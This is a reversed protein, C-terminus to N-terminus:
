YFLYELTGISQDPLAFNRTHLIHFYDSTLDGSFIYSITVTREGEDRTKKRGETVRRKILVLNDLITCSRDASSDRRIYRARIFLIEIYIHVSTRGGQGSIFPSIKSLFTSKYNRYKGDLRGLEYPRALSNFINM